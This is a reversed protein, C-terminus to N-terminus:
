AAPELALADDLTAALELLRQVQADDGSAAANASHHAALVAAEAERVLGALHPRRKRLMSARRAVGQALRSMASEQEPLGSLPAASAPPHLGWSLVYGALLGLATWRASEGFLAALAITLAGGLLALLWPGHRALWEESRPRLAFPRVTAPLGHSACLAAAAEATRRSAGSVLVARGAGLLRLKWLSPARTGLRELVEDVARLPARPRVVDHVVVDYEGSSLPPRASLAPPVTGGGLARLFQGADLFRLEPDPELARRLAEGDRGEIPRAASSSWPTCTLMEFWTAGLAYLDARADGREGALIEPAIYGPTGAVASASTIRTQGAARALGFDLLKVAGGDTLFVNHPKLDRHIVGERHAARLGACIELTVRRAEAPAMPGGRVLREHLTRGRLLEMSIFPRGQHEHLDFVRVIGPHDLSRAIALERRFRECVLTDQALHAHLVKVAVEASTARDRAAFVEALGGAGIRRLM